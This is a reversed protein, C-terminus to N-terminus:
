PFLGGGWFCVSLVWVFLVPSEAGHGSELQLSLHTAYSATWSTTRLVSEQSRRALASSRWSSKLKLPTVRGGIVAVYGLGQRVWVLTGMISEQQLECVFTGMVFGQQLEM